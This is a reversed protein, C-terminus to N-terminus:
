HKGGDHMGALCSRAAEACSSPPTATGLCSQLQDVCTLAGPGGDHDVRPDQGHAAADPLSPRGGDRKNSEADGEDEGQDEDDGPNDGHARADPAVHEAPHGADPGGHMSPSGGADPILAALCARLDDECNTASGDAVCARHAAQCSQVARLADDISQDSIQESSGDTPQTCGQGGGALWLMGLAFTSFGSWRVIGFSTTSFWTSRNRM